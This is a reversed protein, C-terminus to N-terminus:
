FNKYILITVFSIIQIFLNSGLLIHSIIYEYEYFKISLIFNIILIFTAIIPIIFIEKFFNINPLISKIMPNFFPLSGNLTVYFSIAWLSINILLGAILTYIIKKNKWFSDKNLDNFKNM